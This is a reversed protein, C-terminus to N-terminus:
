LGCVEGTWNFSEPIVWPHVEVIGRLSSFGFHRVIQRILYHLPGSTSSACLSKASELLQVATNRKVVDPSPEQQRM